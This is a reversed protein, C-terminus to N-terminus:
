YKYMFEEYGEMEKAYVRDFEENQAVTFSNRWGGAVGKRLWEGQPRLFFDRGIEKKSREKMYEFSCVTMVKGIQEETLDKGIHKAIKIISGRFDKKMDEFKIWLLWPENKYKLWEKMFGWYSGYVTNGDTYHRLLTNFDTPELFRCSNHWGLLSVITDKPCREVFISRPKKEFLQTPLYEPILHTPMKRPSPSQSLLDSMCPVGTIGEAALEPHDSPGLEFLPIREQLAMSDLKSLDDVNHIADIIQCAWNTGAKPYTILFVDDPRVEFKPLKTLLTNENMICPMLWDKKIYYTKSYPPKKEADAM